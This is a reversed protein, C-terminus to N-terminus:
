LAILVGQAHDSIHARPEIDKDFLLKHVESQLLHPTPFLYFSPVVSKQTIVCRTTTVDVVLNKRVEKTFQKSKIFKRYSSACTVYLIIYYTIIV